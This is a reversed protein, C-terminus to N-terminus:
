RRWPNQDVPLENTGLFGLIFFEAGIESCQSKIELTFVHFYFDAGLGDAQAPARM